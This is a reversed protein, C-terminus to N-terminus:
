RVNPTPTSPPPAPLNPTSPRPAPLNPTMAGSHFEQHQSGAEMSSKILRAGAFGLIFAGGLLWAPRRRGFNQVDDLLQKPDQERIYTTLRELNNAAKDGYQAAYRAIPGNEEGALSEGFRRVANVVTTLDHAASEKGRSVQSGAREQVQNVIEGTTQKAQQLLDQGGAQEGTAGQTAGQTAAGPTAEPSSARSTGAGTAAGGSQKRGAGTKSGTSGTGKSEQMNKQTEM